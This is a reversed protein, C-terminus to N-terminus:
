RSGDKLGELYAWGIDTLVIRQEPDSDDDVAFDSCSHPPTNTSGQVSGQASIGSDCESLNLTM